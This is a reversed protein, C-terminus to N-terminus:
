RDLNIGELTRPHRKLDIKNELYSLLSILSFFSVVSPMKMMSIFEGTYVPLIYKLAQPAVIKVFTQVKTFGMVYAVERQGKDVADIGTRMMESIYAALFVILLMLCLGFFLITKEIM